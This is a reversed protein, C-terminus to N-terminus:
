STLSFLLLLLCNLFFFTAFFPGLRFRKFTRGFITTVRKVNSDLYSLSPPPLLLRHHGGGGM